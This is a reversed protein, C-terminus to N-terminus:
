GLTQTQGYKVWTKGLMLRVQQNLECNPQSLLIEVVDLFL